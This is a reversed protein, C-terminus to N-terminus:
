APRRWPLSVGRDVLTLLAAVLVALPWLPAQPAADAVPDLPPLAPLASGGLGPSGEGGGGRIPEGAPTLWTTALRPRWEALLWRLANYFVTAALNARDPDASAEFEPVLVTRPDAAVAIWPRGAPDTLVPVFGDPLPGPPAPATAEFVDLSVGDLIPHDEDFYGIIPSGPAITRAYTRLTLVAGAAAGAEPGVDLQADAGTVRRWATVPPYPASARWNVTLAAAMPVDIQLLDDGAYAGGDRLRVQHLGRAAPEFGIRQVDGDGGADGDGSGDEDDLRMTALAQGDPGIVELVPRAAASDTTVMVEVRRAGYLGGGVMRADTVGANPAAAGVTLWSVRRGDGPASLASSAPLDTIVLVHTPPCTEPSHGAAANLAAAAGGRPRPAPDLTAATLPGGVRVQDDVLLVQSCVAVGDAVTGLQEIVADLLARAADARTATDAAALGDMPGSRTTMSYSTDVVVLVGLRRDGALLGPGLLDLLALAMLGLAALRLWLRWRRILVRPDFRSPPPSVAAFRSLFRAASPRFAEFPPRRLYLIVLWGAAAALTAATLVGATM